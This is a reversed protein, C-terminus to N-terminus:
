EGDTLTILVKMATEDDFRSSSQFVDLSKKLGKCTTTTGRRHEINNMTNKFPKM